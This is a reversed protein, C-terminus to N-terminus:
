SDPRPVSTRGVSAFTFRMEAPDSGDEFFMLGVVSVPFLTLLAGSVSSLAEDGEFPFSTAVAGVLRCTVLSEVAGLTRILGLGVAGGRVGIAGFTSDEGPLGTTGSDVGRNAGTVGGVDFDDALGAIGAFGSAVVKGAVGVLGGVGVENPRDVLRDVGTAGDVAVFLYSAAVVIWSECPGLSGELPDDRLICSVTLTGDPDVISLAGRLELTPIGTLDGPEILGGLWASPDVWDIACAFRDSEGVAGVAATWSRVVVADLESLVASVGIEDTPDPAGTAALLVVAALAGTAGILVAAGLAGTVDLSGTTAFVGFVGLSGTTAFVGFVGLSGTTAFVGFAGLTGTAALAGLTLAVAAAPEISGKVDNGVCVGVRESAPGARASMVETAVPVSSRVRSTPVFLGPAAEIADSRSIRTEAIECDGRSVNTLAIGSPRIFTSAGWLTKLGVGFDAVNSPASTSWLDSAEESSIPRVWREAGDRAAAVSPVDFTGVVGAAATSTAALERVPAGASVSANETVGFV